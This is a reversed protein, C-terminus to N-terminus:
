AKGAIYLCTLMVRLADHDMVSHHLYFRKLFTVATAIVKRPRRERVTGSALRQSYYLVVKAEDAPTLPTLDETSEGHTKRLNLM